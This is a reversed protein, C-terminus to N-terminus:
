RSAQRLGRLRTQIGLAGNALAGPVVHLPRPTFHAAFGLPVALALCAVEPYLLWRRM